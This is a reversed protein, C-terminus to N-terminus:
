LALAAGTVTGETVAGKPPYGLTPHVTNPWNGTGCWVSM